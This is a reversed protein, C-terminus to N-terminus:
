SLFNKPLGPQLTFPVGFLCSSSRKNRGNWWVSFTIHLTLCLSLYFTCHCHLSLRVTWANPNIYSDGDNTQSITLRTSQHYSGFTLLVNGYCGEEYTIWWLSEEGEKFTIMSVRMVAWLVGVFNWLSDCVPLALPCFASISEKSPTDRKSDSTMPVYFTQGDKILISFHWSLHNERIARKGSPTLIIVITLTWPIPLFWSLLHAGSGHITYHVTCGMVKGFYNKEQLYSKKLPFSFHLFLLFFTM